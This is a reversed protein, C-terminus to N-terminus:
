CRVPGGWFCGYTDIGENGESAATNGGNIQPERIEEEPGVLFFKLWPRELVELVCWFM